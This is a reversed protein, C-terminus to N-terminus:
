TLHTDKMKRWFDIVNQDKLPHKFPHPWFGPEAECLVIRCDNCAIEETNTHWRQAGYQQNFEINRMKAYDHFFSKDKSKIIAELNYIVCHSFEHSVLYRTMAPHIPIRKGALVIYPNLRPEEGAEVFDSNSSAHGNTRALGEFPMIFYDPKFKLKVLGEIRAIESRVLEEDHSYCPFPDVLETHKYPKTDLTIFPRCSDDFTWKIDSHKLFHIM